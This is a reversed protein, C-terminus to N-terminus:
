RAHHPGTAEQHQGRDQRRGELRVVREGTSPTVLVAALAAVFPRSVAAPVAAM